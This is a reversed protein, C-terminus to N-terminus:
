DGRRATQVARVISDVLGAALLGVVVVLGVSRGPVFLTVIALLAIACAWPM